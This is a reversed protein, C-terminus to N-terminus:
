SATAVRGLPDSREAAVRIGFQVTYAPGVVGTGNPGSYPTVVLNHNGSTGAWTFGDSPLNDTDVVVGDLTYSVSAVDGTVTPEFRLESVNLFGLDFFPDPAAVAAPVNGRIEGMPFAESHVNVYAQGTSLANLAEVLTPTPNSGGHTHSTLNVSGFITDSRRNVGANIVDDTGSFVDFIHAMNSQGANAPGHIHINTLDATLGQYTISYNLLNTAADYFFTASGTAPSGSTGDASGTFNNVQDATISIPAWQIDGPELPNPSLSGLDQGNAADVVNLSTILGSSGDLVTITVEDHVVAIGNDATLRLVYVGNETFTVNTDIEYPDAFSVITPGSVLNWITRLAVGNDSDDIVDADLNSTVSPGNITADSGADVQPPSDSAALQIIEIGNVLPNEVVHLFDINLTGDSVTVVNSFLGGVHHGLQDSLDIDNLNSPVSGEIAVDFIRQGSASTGSFSNGLYLRVEYEGAEPVPFSWAMEAGGLGDWRESDFIAGPVSVPVTPGPDLGADGFLNNSGANSLYVSNNDWTDGTWLPGGDLSALEPGGTNVRYLPTSVLGDDDQITVTATSVGLEANSSVGTLNITFTETSEVDTDELLHITITADSSAGAIVISDSYIGTGPSYSATPSLFEYDSLPTAEGPAIEFTVTVTQDNPVTVDTLLSVQLQVNSETVTPSGSIISVVPIVPVVVSETTDDDDGDSNDGATSDPDSQNSSLVQAYNTLVGSSQVDAFITLLANGGSALAGLNWIGTVADYSGGGTDGTYSLGAPLLDQVTVGTANDSGGNSVTLTIAINEGVSPTLDSISQSLSLDATAVPTDDDQITVTATSVGLEANSSVSILNITYSESPELAADELINVTITGSSAGSVIELSDSYVGASYSATPSLYEYHVQPTAGSSVIEFSVLVTEGSPVAIDTQLSTQFEVDEEVVSPSGGVISVVPAPPTSSGLQIIEIGNVLPNEVVHLFDINLTGDSVTVVNSFLGGVHHGLQDSLDIDNLNSPVSGEIAVDFIRQGSASTGSFSNGLYLRVEYEGAEPVPFSWAMEAGGLGDWRESDFIAGPVSVPVTPGPDLGADGFLNNSGANSLYVSNNDWTDGTWLPGGDLSALEPGGTNVRYLPTSVLGDDDQITVTATSVGLEANSSVGTLNITFTETSEVDTDELLHITITADSSAGAIVISDSYIGTGPSYSATPSLFEYDSLPTAEGPAIEFTVTVTQDNPVTVDTLLSVQLQVNSETVTPSGSIISVVPIVPVVVSETTDDDDGDSNDGATSDPDSQNSSLVQAYNTLVGSSQVDAFITLLANGGSALAGLNWIGTVADYSGGGTDGTYSLGAPLLDQVTVGTANDSGGNSVTLTIAINEGVSPTLDSISQSLSLDATAVPTDDDQITVTATSVGLEANSSVSILNITYSESPELAADEM